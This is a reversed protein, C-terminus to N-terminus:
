WFKDFAQMLSSYSGRKSTHKQMTLSHVVNELSRRLPHPLWILWADVLNDEDAPVEVFFLQLLAELIAQQLFLGLRAEIIKWCIPHIELKMIKLKAAASSIRSFGFYRVSTIHSITYFPYSVVVATCYGNIDCYRQM